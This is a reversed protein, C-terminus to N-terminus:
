LNLSMRLADEQNDQYYQRHRGVIQFGFKRYLNQASLNGARVELAVKKMGRLKVLHLMTTLLREGIKKRRFDPHVALSSIHAGDSVTSFGGYGIVVGKDTKAVLFHSSLSDQLERPFMNRTWPAPFSATEIDMVDKLDEEKMREIYIKGARIEKMESTKREM